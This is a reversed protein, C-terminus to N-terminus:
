LGATAAAKLEDKRTRLVLLGRAMTLVDSLTVRSPQAQHSASLRVPLEVPAVGALEAAYDLETTFLFGPEVLSECVSRLFRGEVLFTGQPDRTRTGLVLRRLTTFGFTMVSRLVGRDVESRSHAKSGILLLPMSGTRTRVEDAGDLDDFGFPLDDATLLVYAGRSRAVGAKLANGMGKDSTLVCLEISPDTWTRELHRGIAATDDTSGNEVVIIEAACGALRSAFSNVTSELVLGSNHAPIVVSLELKNRGSSPHASSVYTGKRDKHYIM